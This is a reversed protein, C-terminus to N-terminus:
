TTQINLSAGKCDEVNSCTVTRQLIIKLTKQSIACLYTSLITSIHLYIYVTLHETIFSVTNYKSSCLYQVKKAQLRLLALSPYHALRAM